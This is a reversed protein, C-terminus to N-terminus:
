PSLFFVACKTRDQIVINDWETIDDRKLISYIKRKGGKSKLSELSSRESVNLLNYKIDFVHCMIKYSLILINRLDKEVGDAFENESQIINGLFDM